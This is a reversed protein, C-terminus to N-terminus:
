NLSVLEEQSVSYVQKPSTTYHQLGDGINTLAAWTQKNLKKILIKRDKITKLSNLTNISCLNATGLFFSLAGLAFGAPINKMIVSDVHRNSSDYEKLKYWKFVNDVKQQMLQVNHKAKWKLSDFRHSEIPRYLVAMIEHLNETPKKCLSELDVFEGLTMTSIDAYGYNKGEHQWIPFFQSKTDVKNSFDKAVKGLDPLAWTKIEDSPIDTFVAITEVLKGLDSLHELNQLRQYKEISLYEPITISYNKKM